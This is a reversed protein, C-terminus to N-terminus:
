LAMFEVLRRTFREPDEVVVSHGVEPYTELVSGPIQQQTREAMERTVLMDKEGYLILVPAKIGAAESVLNMGALARGNRAWGSTCRTASETLIRDYFEDQPATPAMPGLVKKVMEPQQWVSDIFTYTAEPVQLGAPGASNVLVLREVLEPHEVTLQQAISGGLSHGVVTAKEIGVARTFQYLDEALDHMTWPGEVGQSDGCTRLDPAYAKVGAPLLAMVREWWVSSAVNGHILLLTRPGSGSERYFLNLGNAIQVTPM